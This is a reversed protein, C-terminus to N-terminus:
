TNQPYYPPSHQCLPKAGEGIRWRKIFVTTQRPSLPSLSALFGLPELNGLPELFELIDLLALTGLPELLELIGLFDLSGLCKVGEVSQQGGGFRINFHM